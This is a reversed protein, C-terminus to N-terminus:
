VVEDVPFSSRLKRMNVFVVGFGGIVQILQDVRIVQLMVVGLM